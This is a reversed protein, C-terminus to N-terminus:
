SKSTTTLILFLPAVKQWTLFIYRLGESMKIVLAPAWNHLPALGMKLVLGLVVCKSRIGTKESVVGGRIIRLSGVRQVIFYVLSAKKIRKNVSMLTLFSIM